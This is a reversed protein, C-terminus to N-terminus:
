PNIKATCQTREAVAFDWLFVAQQRENGLEEAIADDGGGGGDFEGLCVYNLYKNLKSKFKFLGTKSNEYRVALKPNSKILAQSKPITNTVNM